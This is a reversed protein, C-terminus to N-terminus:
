DPVAAGEAILAASRSQSAERTQRVLAELVRGGSAGALEGGTPAYATFGLLHPGIRALGRWYRQDAGDPVPGHLLLLALMDSNRRDLVQAGAPILNALADALDLDRDPPEAVSVVIMGLPADAVSRRAGLSDCRAVVSFSRRLSGKDVCFGSPPVLTLAGDALEAAALAMDRRQNVFSNGSSAGLVGGGDDECAATAFGLCLCFLSRRSTWTSM